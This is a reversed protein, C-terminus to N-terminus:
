NFGEIFRRVALQGQRASMLGFMDMKEAIGALESHKNLDSLMSTVANHLEGIEVYKLARQKAWALHEGRTM